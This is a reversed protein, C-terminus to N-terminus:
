LQNSRDDCSLFTGIKEIGIKTRWIKIANIVYIYEFNHPTNYM